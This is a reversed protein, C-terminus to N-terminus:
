GVLAIIVGCIASMVAVIWYRMVIAENSWGRAQLAHHLPALTFIKRHFLRKSIIQIFSSLATITLPLAIIPLVFVSDTLFAILALCVTLPLMGVEGMYWAAPPVNYWLFALTATAVTGAFAAIHYQQHAVAIVAYAIYAIMLVGGSLGDIGDIVRSSFTGLVVIFFFPVFFIGIDLERAFPIYVTHMGLKIFFWGALVIAIVSIISLLTRRSLGHPPCYPISGPYMVTLEEFFGIIVCGFFVAFLIWTQSRSVIDLTDIILGSGMKSIIWLIVTSLFLGIAIVIGGVRPTQIELAANHIRAFNEEITPNTVMDSRHIKKWLSLRRMIKLLVPAFAMGFLYAAFAPICILIIVLANM